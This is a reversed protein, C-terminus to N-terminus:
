TQENNFGREKLFDKWALTEKSDNSNQYSFIWKFDQSLTINEKSCIMENLTVNENIISLYEEFM